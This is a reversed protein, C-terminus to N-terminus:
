YWIAPPGEEYYIKLLIDKIENFKIINNTNKDLTTDISIYLESIGVPLNFLGTTTKIYYKNDPPGLAVYGDAADPPDSAKGSVPFEVGADFFPIVGVDFTGIEDFLERDFVGLYAANTPLLGLERVKNDSRNWGDYSRRFARGAAGFQVIVKNRFGLSQTDRSKIFDAGPIIQGGIGKIRQNWYKKSLTPNEYLQHDADQLKVTEISVPLRLIFAKGNFYSNDRIARRLSKAFLDYDADQLTNSTYEQFGVISRAVSIESSTNTRAEGLLGVQRYADAGGGVGGGRLRADWDQLKQRAIDLMNADTARLIDEKTKFSWDKYSIGSLQTSKPTKYDYIQYSYPEGWAYELSKSLLYLDNKATQLKLETLYRMDELDAYYSPDNFWADTSEAQFRYLEDALMRLRVLANDIAARALDADGAAASVSNSVAVKELQFQAQQIHEASNRLADDEAYHSDTSTQLADTYHKLWSSDATVKATAQHRDGGEFNGQDEVHDVNEDSSCGETEPTCNSTGNTCEEFSTVQVTEYCKSPSATQRSQACKGDRCPDLDAKPCVVEKQEYTVRQCKLRPKYIKVMKPVWSKDTTENSTEPQAQIEALVKDADRIKARTTALAEDLDRYEGEIAGITGALTTQYKAANGYRSAAQRYQDVLTGIESTAFQYRAPPNQALATNVLAEVDALLKDRKEPTTLNGYASQSVDIGSYLALADAFHEVETSFQRKQTQLNERISRDDTKTEGQQQLAAAISSVARGRLLSLDNTGVFDALGTSIPRYDSLQKYRRRIINEVSNLQSGYTKRFATSPQQAALAAGVLHGVQAARKLHAKAQAVKAYNIPPIKGDITTTTSADAHIREALQQHMLTWFWLTRMVLYNECPSEQSTRRTPNWDSPLEALDYDDSVFTGGEAPGFLRVLFWTNDRRLLEGSMVLGLEYQRIAAQINALSDALPTNTVVATTLAEVSSTRLYNGALLQGRLLENFAHQLYPYVPGEASSTGDLMQLFLVTSSTLCASASTQTVDRFQPPLVSPPPLMGPTVYLRYINALDAQRHGTEPDAGCQRRYWRGAALYGVADQYDSQASVLGPVAFLLIGLIRVNVFHKQHRISAFCSTM